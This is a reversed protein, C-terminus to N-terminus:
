ISTVSLKGSSARHGNLVANVDGRKCEKPNWSEIGAILKLNAFNETLYQITSKTLHLYRHTDSTSFGENPLCSVHFEELLPVSDPALIQCIREDTWRPRERRGINTVKFKKLNHSKSLFHPLNTLSIRSLKLHRLNAFPVTNGYLFPVNQQDINFVDNSPKEICLSELNPCPYVLRPFHFYDASILELTQITERMYTINTPHQTLTVHLECAICNVLQIDKASPFVTKMYSMVKNISVQVYSDNEVCAKIVSPLTLREGLYCAEGTDSHFLMTQGDCSCNLDDLMTTSVKLDVLETLRQMPLLSQQTLSCRTLDLQKLKSQLGKVFVEFGRDSVQDRSGKINLVELKTCQTAIVNLLRDSALGPIELARLTSGLGDLCEMVRTELLYGIECQKLELKFSMTTTTCCPSKSDLKKNNKKLDKNEQIVLTLLRDLNQVIEPYNSTKPFAFEHHVVNIDAVRPDFFVRWLEFALCDTPNHHCRLRDRSLCVDLVEKLISAPLESTFYKRMQLLKAECGVRGSTKIAEHISKMAMKAVMEVSLRSLKQWSPEGSAVEYVPPTLVTIRHHLDVVSNHISQQGSGYNNLSIEDGNANTM